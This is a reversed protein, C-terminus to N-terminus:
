HDALMVKSVEVGDWDWAVLKWAYQRQKHLCYTSSQRVPGIAFIELEM